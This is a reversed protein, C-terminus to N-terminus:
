QCLFVSCLIGKLPMEGDAFAFGEAQLAQKTQSPVLLETSKHAPRCWSPLEVVGVQFLDKPLATCGAGGM